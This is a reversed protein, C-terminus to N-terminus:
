WFQFDFLPKLSWRVVHSAYSGLSRNGAQLVSQCSLELGGDRDPYRLTVIHGSDISGRGDDEAALRLVQVHAQFFVAKYLGQLALEDDTDEGADANRLELRLDISCGEYFTARGRCDDAGHGVGAGKMVSACREQGDGFLM